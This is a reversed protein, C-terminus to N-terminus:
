LQVRQLKELTTRVSQVDKETNKQDRQVQKLTDTLDNLGRIADRYSGKVTEIQTLAADISSKETGSTQTSANSGTSAPSAAPPNKRRPM